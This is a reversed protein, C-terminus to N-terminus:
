MSMDGTWPPCCSQEPHHLVLMQLPLRRWLDLRTQVKVVSFAESVIQCLLGPNECPKLHIVIWIFSSSELAETALGRGAGVMVRDWLVSPEFEGLANQCSSIGVGGGACYSFDGPERWQLAHKAKSEQKNTKLYEPLPFLTVTKNKRGWM